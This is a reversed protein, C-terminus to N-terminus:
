EPSGFPDIPPPSPEVKRKSGDRVTRTGKGPAIPKSPQTQTAIGGDIAPPSPDRVTVTAEPPAADPGADVTDPADPPTPAMRESSATVPQGADGGAHHALPANTPSGHRSSFPGWKLGIGVGLGFAVATIMAAQGGVSMNSHATRLRAIISLVISAQPQATFRLDLPTYWVAGVSRLYSAMSLSPCNQVSFRGMASEGLPRRDVFVERYWSPPADHPAANHPLTM